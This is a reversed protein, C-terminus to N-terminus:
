EKEPQAPLAETFEINLDDVDFFSKADINQAIVNLYINGKSTTESPVVITRSVKTWENPNKIFEKMNCGSWQLVTEGQTATVALDVNNALDGSRVWANVTVAIAKGKLSDALAYSYGLGFNNGPTIRSFKKGTHADGDVVTQYNLVGHDLDIEQVHRFPIQVEEESCSNLVLMAAFPLIFFLKKKMCTLIKISRYFYTRIYRFYWNFFFDLRRFRRGFRQDAFL